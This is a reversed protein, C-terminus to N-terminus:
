YKAIQPLRDYSSLSLSITIVYSPNHWDSFGMEMIQSTLANIHMGHPAAEALLAIIMNKIADPNSSGGGAKEGSSTGGLNTADGEGEGEGGKEGNGDEAAGTAAVMAMAGGAGGGGAPAPAAAPTQAAGNGVIRSLAKELELQNFYKQAHSAIQSATRSTVYKQSITAWDGKHGPARPTTERLGQLIILLSNLDLDTM